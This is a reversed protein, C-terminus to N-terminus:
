AAVKLFIAHGNLNYIFGSNSLSIENCLRTIGECGWFGYDDFIVAGGTVIMPWVYEFVDKASDHTDVDIHCLKLKLKLGAKEFNSTEPFIGELLQINCLNMKSILDKVIEISTDSHEGGKYKTDRSSAKVVGGFTDALFITSGSMPENAKAMLCGTGGRWVGVELIDGNLTKNRRIFNWLEFCRYIDVLTNKKVSEYTELFESDNLWPSYTAHSLIHQHSIGPVSESLKFERVLELQKKYYKIAEDVFDKKYEPM